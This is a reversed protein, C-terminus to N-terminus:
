SFNSFHSTCYKESDPSLLSKRPSHFRESTMRPEPAQALRRLPNFGQRFTWSLVIEEAQYGMKSRALEPGYLARIRVACHPRVARSALPVTCHGCACLPNGRFRYKKLTRCTLLNRFNRRFTAVSFSRCKSDCKSGNQIDVLKRCIQPESKLGFKPWILVTQLSPPPVCSRLWLRSPPVGNRSRTYIINEM